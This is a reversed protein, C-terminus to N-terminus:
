GEVLEVTLPIEDRHLYVDYMALLPRVSKRSGGAAAPGFYLFEVEDAVAQASERTNCRAAIRLRVEWPEHDSPPTMEGHVSNLGIYDVRLEEVPIGDHALRKAVTDAGLQARSLAGPGAFSIEGEGIFGQLCGVLVKLTEPAPKGRAGTVLVHDSSQQQFRVNSVDVVVDPTLYNEPDHVEYVLQAKSNEVDVLGGTGALKWVTSTGDARIDAIPLGVNWLDPVVRYPPDAFNGGSGHTGCELMHGATQGGALLDWDDLAWGHEFIAPALFLSPDALRGGVVVDAGMRLAEVIPAAGIYANATVVQGPLESLRRGTSTELDRAVIADLVDDGVIAAVKADPYGLETLLQKTRRAGAMPNAAGMNAIFRVGRAVAPATLERVIRDLRIDYGKSPDEIKRLQAHVLTREALCDLSIYDLDGHELLEVAPEIRDEAYASGCGVRVYEKSM